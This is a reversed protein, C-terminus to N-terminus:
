SRLGLVVVAAHRVKASAISRQISDVVDASDPIISDLASPVVVIRVEQRELKSPYWKGCSRARSQRYSPQSASLERIWLSRRWLDRHQAALSTKLFLNKCVLFLKVVPQSCSTWSPKMQGM